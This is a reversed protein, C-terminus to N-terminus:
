WQNLVPHHECSATGRDDQGDEGWGDVDSKADGSDMIRRQSEYEPYQKTVLGM